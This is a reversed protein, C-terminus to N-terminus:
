KTSIADRTAKAILENIPILDKEGKSDTKTAIFGDTELKDLMNALLNETSTGTSFKGWWYAGVLCGVAIITHLTADM